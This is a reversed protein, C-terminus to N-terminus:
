DKRIMSIITILVGYLIGAVPWIIWSRDWANTLFSYLLYIAVVIGWYIGAIPDNRKAAKKSKSSYEGEQLLMKYSDWIVNSRVILFVGIAVIVLICVVGYMIHIESDGFITMLIFMPIVSLVCLMIGVIMQWIYKDRYKDRKDKVLGDVGYQTDIAEKELFEYPESKFASRIFLGVACAVMVILVLVGFGVAQEASIMLKGLDQAFILTILLVPSLICLAVGLGIKNSLNEKLDMFDGAEQMSVKRVDEKDEVETLELESMEEKLLYDTSVGFIESLRIIKNMDPVSQAGEWKSVSQRSVSLMEALEEQSWGNRKRLDIIKDALIM